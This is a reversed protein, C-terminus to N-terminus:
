SNSSDTGRALLEAERDPALGEARTSRASDWQYTDRVTDTLSRFTLGNALAKSIDVDNAAEWGPVAIWLPVGMWPNAGAALLRETPIWVLEPTSGTVQCCVDVFEGFGVQRGTVNFTGAAGAFASDVIWRALDRADIFQLPDDPRGPALVVGGDAIRRPWYAFRDTPDHPGVILGPRAILSRPGFADTVLRECVAKKGGYSTADPDLPADEVQAQAVSHDGYVSVTSVFVYRDVRDGLAEISLEVARPEYAAVDVVIDWAGTSLASVDELRDGRLHTAEPFLDPATLGRNFLTVQAKDALAAEVVARGLFRTGGLVL